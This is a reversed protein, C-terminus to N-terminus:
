QTFQIRETTKLVSYDIERAEWMGGGWVKQKSHRLQVTLMTLRKECRWPGEKDLTEGGKSETESSGRLLERVRQRGKEEGM